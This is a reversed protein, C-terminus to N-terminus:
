SVIRLRAQKPGKKGPYIRAAIDQNTSIPVALPKLEIQAAQGKGPANRMATEVDIIGLAHSQTEILCGRITAGPQIHLHATRIGGQIDASKTIITNTGCICMAHLKGAIHLNGSCIILNANVQANEEITVSGTTQISTGWHGQTIHVDGICLRGACHPCTATEAFPSHHSSKACRYCTVEIPKTSQPRPVARDRILFRPPKFFTAM